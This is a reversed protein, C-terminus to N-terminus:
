LAALLSSDDDFIMGLPAIARGGASGWCERFTQM